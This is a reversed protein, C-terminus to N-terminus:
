ETPNKRGIIMNAQDGFSRLIRIPRLGCKRFLRRLEGESYFCYLGRVEKVKVAGANSLLKRAQAIDEENEAVAVFNRYIESLDPNPKLSSVALKGGPRLVRCLEAVVKEPTQLYSVVLNCCIQDFFDNSFPVGVELDAVVFESRLLSSHRTSVGIRKLLGQQLEQTEQHAESVAERVFDIGYYFCPRTTLLQPSQLYRYAQKLLLFSAYNANGCGADLIRQDSWAGGLNDYITELLNWYDHINCISKFRSLYGKWFNREDAKSYDYREKLLSKERLERVRVDGLIPDRVEDDTADCNSSNVISFHVAHRLAYKMATRNEVFRHLALPLTVFQKKETGLAKFVTQADETRVWSDKEGACIFTPARIQRADVLTDSLDSFDNQLADALFADADINFGLVDLTGYRKGKKYNAVLDERYTM